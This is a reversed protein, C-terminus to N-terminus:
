FSNIYPDLFFIVSSPTQHIKLTGGNSFGNSYHLCISVLKSNQAFPPNAVPFPNIITSPHPLMEIM